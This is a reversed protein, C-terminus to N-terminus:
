TTHYVSTLGREIFCRCALRETVNCGTDKNDTNIIQFPKDSTVRTVEGKEKLLQFRQNCFYAWEPKLNTKSMKEM